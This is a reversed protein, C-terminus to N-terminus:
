RHRGDALHARGHLGSRGLERTGLFRSEKARQGQGTLGSTAGLRWTFPERESNRLALAHFQDEFVLMIAAIHDDTHSQDRGFARADNATTGLEAVYVNREVVESKSIHRDDVVRHNRREATERVAVHELATENVRDAVRREERGRARVGNKLKSFCLLTM